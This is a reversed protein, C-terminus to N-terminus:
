EIENKFLRKSKQINKEIMEKIEKMQSEGIAKIMISILDKLMLKTQETMNKSENIIKLIKKHQAKIELFDNVESKLIIENLNSVFEYKDEKRYKKVWKNTEIRIEKSLQSLEERIFRNGEIQWNYIDHSLIGKKKSKIVIDKESNLLIGIMSHNPIIHTYIDKISQYEESKLQEELLGPSDMGYIAKIKKKVYRKAYMGAILALNGGKSHGGLIIEKRQFLFKKNIYNIALQHSMTPFRYSLMFDEIWGSFLQDTGEFSVYVKNKQYEISVVGFQTDKNGIYDYNYLICDKYRKTDRMYYLLNNGGKVAIINNDKGKKYGLHIRAADQITIKRKEKFVKELTAYSLYTFITADIENFEKEEFSYIGYDDIYKFIDM